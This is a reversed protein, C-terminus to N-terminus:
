STQVQHIIFVCITWYRLFYPCGSLSIQYPLLIYRSFYKEEFIMSLHPLFVLELGRKNKLLTKYSTFDLSSYSLKLINDNSRLKAHLLLVKSQQNLSESLNSKKYFPRPITERACKTYLKEPFINRMNYEILQGFQMVQNEKSRSINTLM